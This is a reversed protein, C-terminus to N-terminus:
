AVQKLTSYSGARCIMSTTQRDLTLTANGGGTATIQARVHTLRDATINPSQQQRNGSVDFAMVLTNITSFRMTYVGGVKTAAGSYAFTVGCANATVDANACYTWFEVEWLGAGPIVQTLGSILTGANGIGTVDALLELKVAALAFSTGVFLGSAADYKFAQGDAIAGFPVDVAVGGVLCRIAGRQM